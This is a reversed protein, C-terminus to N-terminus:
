SRNIILQTKAEFSIGSTNYKRVKSTLVRLLERLRRESSALAVTATM